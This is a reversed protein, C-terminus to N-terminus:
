KPGSMFMMLRSRGLITTSSHPQGYRRGGGRGARGSTETLFHVRIKILVKKSLRKQVANSKTM